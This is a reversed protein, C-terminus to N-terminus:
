SSRGQIESLMRAEMEDVVDEITMAEVNYYKDFFEDYTLKTRLIKNDTNFLGSELNLVIDCLQAGDIKKARCFAPMIWASGNQRYLTIIDDCDDAFIVNITIKGEIQGAIQKNTIDNSDM